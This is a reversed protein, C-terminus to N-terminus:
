ILAQRGARPKWEYREGHDAGRVILHTFSNLSCYQAFFEDLVSAFLVMEGEHAFNEEKMELEIRSGRVVSGHYRREEPQAEVSLIGALRLENERAAQRDHLAGFDYTGLITRLAQLSLHPEGASGDGGSGDWSALSLFNGSLNAILRWALEGGLPPVLSATPRGLNRFRAFEPSSGTAESLDGLRLRSPLEANTCTLDAVVRETAPEAKEQDATVFSIYSDVGRAVASSKLRTLYYVRAGADPAAPHGFSFFAPFDREDTTGKVWGRVRDVSFIEFHEPNRDAPRMLYETKEHDVRIPDSEMEVLNVVPTCHLRVNDNSLRPAEELSRSLEFRLEFGETAGLDPLGALGVVDLFLFKQPLSTYEQLLRYGPFAHFPYPLLAQDDGFGVPQIAEPGLRREGAAEPGRGRVIVERVHRTLSLYLANTIAPEGHLHIRLRDEERLQEPDADPSLRFGLRIRAHARPPTEVEAEDLELPLLRVGYCTRFRCATGDVPVSAVETGREIALPARVAKPLAEFQLIAMSPLPRLYHPWMMQMLTQTLEPLEDDLKQRLRGTLFAFGQLLREVDPDAGIEALYPAAAPNKDAFEAGMKRLFDLEDHYYKNFM